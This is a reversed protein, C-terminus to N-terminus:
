NLGSSSRCRSLNRFERERLPGPTPDEPVQSGAGRHQGCGPFSCPLSQISLGRKRCQRCVASRFRCDARNHPGGCGLCNSQPTKAAAQWKKRPTMKLRSVEGDADSTEDEDAEGYHVSQHGNPLGGAGSQFRQIEASSKASMEAARAEDLAILLTLDSRALLRQQLKLNRVGCVLQDLLM